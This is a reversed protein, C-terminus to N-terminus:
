VKFVSLSLLTPSALLFSPHPLGVKRTRRRCKRARDRPMGSSPTPTKRIEEIEEGVHFANNANALVPMSRMTVTGFSATPM